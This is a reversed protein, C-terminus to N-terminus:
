KVVVAFVNSRALILQQLELPVTLMLFKQFHTIDDLGLTRQSHCHYHITPKGHHTNWKDKGKDTEPPDHRHTEFLTPEFGNKLTLYRLYGSMASQCHLFTQRLSDVYTTWMSGHRPFLQCAAWLQKGKHNSGLPWLARPGLNWWLYFLIFMRLVGAASKETFFYPSCRM